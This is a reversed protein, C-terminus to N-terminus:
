VDVGPPGDGGIQPMPTIRPEIRESKRQWSWDNEGGEMWRRRSVLFKTVKTEKTEKQKIGRSIKLMLYGLFRLAEGLTRL